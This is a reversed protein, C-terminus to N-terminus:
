LLHLSVFERRTCCRIRSSFFQHPVLLSYRVPKGIDVEDRPKGEGENSGELVGESEGEGSTMLKDKTM